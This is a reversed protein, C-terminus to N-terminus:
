RERPNASHYVAQCIYKIYLYNICLDAEFLLLLLLPEDGM